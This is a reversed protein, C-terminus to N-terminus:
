QLVQQVGLPWNTSRFRHIDFQLFPLRTVYQFGQSGKLLLPAVGGGLRIFIGGGIDTVVHNTQGGCMVVNFSFGLFSENRRDCLKVTSSNRLRVFLRAHGLEEFAVGM